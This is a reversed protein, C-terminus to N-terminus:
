PEEEEAMLDPNPDAEWTSLIQAGQEPTAQEWSNWEAQEEDSCPFAGTDASWYAGSYWDQFWVPLEQMWAGEESWWGESSYFTNHSSPDGWYALSPSAPSQALESVSPGVTSPSETPWSSSGTSQYSGM